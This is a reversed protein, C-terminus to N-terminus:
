SAGPARPLAAIVPAGAHPVKGIGVYDRITGANGLMLGIAKATDLASGGGVGVIQDCSKDRALAIGQTVSHVAPDSEVETFAVAEIDAVRLTDLARDVIGAAKVGPDGIVLVRKGGLQQVYAWFFAALLLGTVVSTMDFQRVMEPAAVSTNSRNVYCDLYALFILTGIRSEALARSRSAPNPSKRARPLSIRTQRKAFTNAV